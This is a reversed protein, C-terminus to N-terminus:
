DPPKDLAREGAVELILDRLWMTAGDLQRARHWQMYIRMPPLKVPPALVKLPLQAAQERALRSPLTAVRETGVVMLGLLLPSMCVLGLAWPKFM